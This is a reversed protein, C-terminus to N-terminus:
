PMLNKALLQWNEPTLAGLDTAGALTYPGIAGRCLATLYAKTGLTEGLDRALARIYTGSSCDIIVPLNFPPTYTTPLLPITAEFRTVTVARPPRDIEIGKRALEYLKKGGIKIASHMPPIQQLDGTLNKMAAELAEATIPDTPTADEIVGEPDLTTSSQGIRITAEYTKPMGLFTDLHKTSERGVGVILLGTAFPDLTGAHGVRQEGTIKRVRDVVDHSTIGAPKNVLLFPM